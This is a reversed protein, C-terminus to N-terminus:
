RRVGQYIPQSVNMIQSSKVQGDLSLIDEQLILDDRGSLTIADQAIMTLGGCCPVEMRVIIVKPITQEKLIEGLKTAYNSTDDLKPCGVVVSRGRLYRWHVDASALPGCTNMIVLEKNRFFPAGPQVLHIQIPWQRLESPLVNPLNDATVPQEPHDTKIEQIRSGPCGGGSPFFPLPEKVPQHKTQAQEMRQVAEQGQTQFLYAKTAQEDFDAADREEITLAGTPCGGICDGFGDCFQEKVLKAKGNIIQLAGESCDAICNGCGDCLEEDIRIIKRNM